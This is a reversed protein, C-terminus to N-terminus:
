GSPVSIRLTTVKGARFEAEAQGHLDTGPSDGQARITWTVRERAAHKHTLDPRVGRSLQERVFQRIQEPGRYSGPQSFPPTSVLESDEAFLDMVAAADRNLWAQEFALAAIFEEAQQEGHSM